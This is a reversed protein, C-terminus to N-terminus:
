LLPRLEPRQEAKTNDFDAGPNNRAKVTFTAQPSALNTSGDFTLDPIVKRLYAFKDGDGIDIAASEIFSDMASGDDDYGLEHNYIYGDGM